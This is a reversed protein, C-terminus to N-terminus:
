GGAIALTVHATDTICLSRVVGLTDSFVVGRSFRSRDLAIREVADIDTDSLGAYVTTALSLIDVTSGPEDETILTIRKHEPLNIPTTPKLVGNEFIAEVTRTM